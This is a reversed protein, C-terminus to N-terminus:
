GQYNIVQTLHKIKAELGQKEKSWEKKAQELEVNRILLFKVQEIIANKDKREQEVRMSAFSEMWEYVQNWHKLSLSVVDENDPFTKLFQKSSLKNTEETNSMKLENMAKNDREDM